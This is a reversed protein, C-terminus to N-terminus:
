NKIYEKGDAPNIYRAGKPLADFESKTKPTVAGSAPAIKGIGTAAALAQNIQNLQAEIPARQEPTVLGDLMGVLNQSQLKLYDILDTKEKPPILRNFTAPDTKLLNIKEQLDSPKTAQLMQAEASRSRIAVDAADKEYGRELTALEKEIAFRRDKIKEARDFEGRERALQEQQALIRLEAVRNDIQRQERQAATLEKRAAERAKEQRGMVGAVGAGLSGLERGRRPDIAAAIEFFERAGLERSRAMAEEAARRTEELGERGFREEQAIRAQLLADLGREAAIMSAPKQTEERMRQEFSERLASPIGSTIRIGQPVMPAPAPVPAAVPPEVKSAGPAVAGSPPLVSTTPAMAPPKQAVPKSRQLDEMTIKGDEIDAITFRGVTRGQRRMEEIIADVEQPTPKRKFPVAVPETIFEPSVGLSAQDTSSYDIPTPPIGPPLPVGIRQFDESLGQSSMAPRPPADDRQQPAPALRESGASAFEDSLAQARASAVPSPAPRPALTSIGGDRVPPAPVPSAPATKKNEILRKHADRLMQLRQARFDPANKRYSNLISEETIDATSVNNARLSRVLDVLEKEDPTQPILPAAIPIREQAPAPVAGAELPAYSMWKERAEPSLADGGNKFAVIGGGAYGHMEGGHRAMVPEQANDAQQLVQEAISGIGQQYANQQQASANQLAQMMKAEQAKKSIASLIAYPQVPASSGPLMSQMYLQKLQDLSLKELMPTQPNIGPSPGGRGPQMGPMMAQGPMPAQGPMQPQAQPQGQPMLGQIGNM